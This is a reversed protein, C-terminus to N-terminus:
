KISGRRTIDSYILIRRETFEALLSRIPDLLNAGRASRIFVSTDDLPLMSVNTYFAPWVGNQFLYQEVNSTYYASVTAGHDAIYKGVARLAKPGAFDGVVPVLLNREELTKLIGFHEEDSLYAHNRGDMDTAQQLDAYSPMNNRGGRGGSGSSAYTLDPGYRFFMGYVYNLGGNGSFDAESLEFGHTKTLRETIRKLNDNFFPEDAEAARFAAFLEAPTSKASVEKPRKRSFLLSLFEARDGSMEFIAKYMLHAMLNGRRIDVIFAMKPELAAIYTFNQDPAVGLYVGGRKMERLAPVVNQLPRENGVLNDSQFYGNEESFESVIKWFEKDSLKDPLSSTAQAVTAVAAQRAVVPAPAFSVVFLAAAAASVASPRWWRTWGSSTM